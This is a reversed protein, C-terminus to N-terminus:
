TGGHQLRHSRGEGEESGLGVRDAGGSVGTQGRGIHFRVGTTESLDADAAAAPRGPRRDHDADLEDSDILTTYDGGGAADTAASSSPRQAEPLRSYLSVSM